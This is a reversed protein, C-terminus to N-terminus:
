ASKKIFKDLYYGEPIQGAEIRAAVLRLWKSESQALEDFTIDAEYTLWPLLEPMLQGIKAFDDENVKTRQLEINRIRAEDIQVAEAFERRTMGMLERLGKFREGAKLRM